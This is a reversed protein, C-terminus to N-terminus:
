DQELAAIGFGAGGYRGGNYLMMRGLETDFVYPYCIMSKEWSDPDCVIGVEHDQRTWSCGDGSVAYGIRYGWDNGRYSYWAEYGGDARRMPCFRTIAVESPHAFSLAEAGTIDWHVGDRGEAYHIDYSPVSQGESQTWLRGAQYWMRWRGQEISVAPCGAFIPEAASRDVIPGASVREFPRQPDAAPRTALGIAVYFPVTVGLNWGQFYCYELGKHEVIWCGMAGHDDFSGLPGPELIPRESLRLVQTPNRIDIDLWSVNSRGLHDRPNFYIRWRYDGLAHPTPLVGHSSVWQSHRDAVFVHGLKRWHMSYGMGQAINRVAQM